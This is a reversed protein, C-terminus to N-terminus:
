EVGRYQQLTNMLEQTDMKINSSVYMVPGVSVASLENTNVDFYEIDFSAKWRRTPTVTIHTIKTWRILGTKTTTIGKENILIKNKTKRRKEVWTCAIIFGLCFIGFWDVPSTGFLAGASEVDTVRLHYLIPILILIAVIAPIYESYSSYQFILQEKPTKGNSAIKRIGLDELRDACKGYLEEKEGWYISDDAPDKYFIIYDNKLTDLMEELDPQQQHLILNLKKSIFSTVAIPQLSPNEENVLNKLAAPETKENGFYLVQAENLDAGEQWIFSYFGTPYM